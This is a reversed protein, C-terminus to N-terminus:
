PPVDFGGLRALLAEMASVSRFNEPTIEAQPITLDFEAEIALMLNVMDISSLGLAALEDDASVPRVVMRKALITEVLKIIRDRPTVSDRVLMDEGVIWHGM